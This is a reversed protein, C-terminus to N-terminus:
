GHQTFTKKLATRFLMNPSATAPILSHCCNRYFFLIYFCFSPSVLRAEFSHHCYVPDSTVIATALYNGATVFVAYFYFHVACLNEVQRVKLAVQKVSM